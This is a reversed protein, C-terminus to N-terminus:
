GSVPEERWKAFTQILRKAGDIDTLPDSGFWKMHQADGHISLLDEADADAIERLFLNQTELEPFHSM